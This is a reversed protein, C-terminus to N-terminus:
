FAVVPEIILLGCRLNGIRFVVLEETFKLVEFHSMGIEIIGVRRGLAHAPSREIGKLLPLVQQRHERNIVEEPFFLDRVKVFTQM